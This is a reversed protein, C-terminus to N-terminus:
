NRIIRAIQNLIEKGNKYVKLKAPPSNEAGLLIIVCDYVYDENKFEFRHNGGSGEPIFEGNELVLDPKESMKNKLSWSAYRYNGNGLDDIRIRFTSTELIRVPEKFERLSEYLTKKEESILKERKEREVKSQYNVSVLKGNLELWIQGDLFMIGRWGMKSWDVSPSSKVIMAILSDDFVEKYMSLFEKGNKIDPIPYERRFPFNIKSIICEPNKSKFCDIFDTVFKQYEKNKEQGSVFFFNM